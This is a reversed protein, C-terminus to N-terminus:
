LQIFNQRPKIPGYVALGLRGVFINQEGGFMCFMFGGRGLHKEDTAEQTLRSDFAPGM